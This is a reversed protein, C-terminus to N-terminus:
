IERTPRCIRSSQSGDPNPRRTLRRLGGRELRNPRSEPRAVRRDAALNLSSFEGTSKGFLHEALAALQRDDFDRIQRALKQIYGLQRRSASHVDASRGEGDASLSESTPSRSADLTAPADGAVQRALEAEVAERCAAYTRRVRDHFGEPDDALLSQDLELEIHCGAGVSSYNPLGQKKQIGVSLKLPM